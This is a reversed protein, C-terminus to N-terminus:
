EGKFQFGRIKRVVDMITGDRSEIIGVVQDDFQVKEPEGAISYAMDRLEEMTKFPLDVGKMSQILDQRRPNIAIGYDTIVADISEGPTTVTTVESCVVPIRGQLLPVIVITCKAGAATDPHGGQAGTIVGDSGVVVNCNFNVDVELAALIVFDLKNVVAGKNFPDAYEGASIRFHRPNIVSEVADLDFDQTDLLADAQNNELLDCMPKTLGGVGFRMRVNREKMIKALSITSAISAGGVGTQYSFGDKFYPTNVVFRTCYDAMMLKRMDTTPKAAGTAIKEPNGIEDVVAVYDVKTMSIHAPFNPFPVLCDTVAVVKDAYDADVMSYSLVGCDSKGGIGRCNGYDDCTPAGIFAIDIRVEGTEIARVRGGHSRMVALGKLKGESIARGIKGRVGSSQIGVITGDEIYDVLKDHAKGLSSACITIDRIGMNHVEEMVMNVVYDGERFHHHFGLTMGDRIKCKVLCDHISDMLKSGQSNIVCKTVPGDKKYEYGDFYHVGKFPEKGTQKLIEEPIERGAANMM